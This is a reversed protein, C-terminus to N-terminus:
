KLIVKMKFMNIRSPVVWVKLNDMKIWNKNRMIKNIRIGKNSELHCLMTLMWQYISSSIKFLYRSMTALNLYGWLIRSIIKARKRIIKIMLSQNSLGVQLFELRTACLKLLQVTIAGILQSMELISSLFCLVSPPFM